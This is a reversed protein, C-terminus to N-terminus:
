NESKASEQRRLHAVRAKYGWGAVALFVVFLIIWFGARQYFAAKVTIDLLPFVRSIGTHRDMVEVEVPYVGAPLYPLSLTTEKSIPSWNDGPKLRYRYQLKEPFQHGTPKFSLYLT